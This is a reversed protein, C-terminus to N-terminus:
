FLEIFKAHDDLERLNEKLRNMYDFMSEKPEPKLIRYAEVMEVQNNGVNCLGVFPRYGVKGSSLPFIGIQFDKMVPFYKHVQPEHTVSSTKMITYFQTSSKM